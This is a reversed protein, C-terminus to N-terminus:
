KKRRNKRRSLKAMKAKRKKAADAKKRDVNPFLPLLHENYEQMFADFGEQTSMDYGAREGALVFGKAMGFRSEDMMMSPFEAELDDLAKLMGEADRPKAVRAIWRFFSRFIPIADAAESESAVTMKRPLLESLIEEVGAGTWLVAPGFGYEFALIVLEHLWGGAIERDKLGAADPSDLFSEVVGALADHVAEGDEPDCGALAEFPTGRQQQMAVTAAIDAVSSLVAEVDDPRLAALEDEDELLMFSAARVEIEIKRDRLIRRLDAVIPKREVHSLIVIALIPELLGTELGRLVHRRVDDMGKERIRRDLEENSACPERFFDDLFTETDM